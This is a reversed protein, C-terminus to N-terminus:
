CLVIFHESDKGKVVLGEGIFDTGRAEAAESINFKIGDFEAGSM